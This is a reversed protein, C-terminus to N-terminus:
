AACWLTDSVRISNRKYKAYAKNKSIMFWLNFSTHHLDSMMFDVM